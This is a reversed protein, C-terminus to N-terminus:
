SDFTVGQSDKNYVVTSQDTKTLTIKLTSLSGYCLVKTAYCTLPLFDNEVLDSARQIAAETFGWGHETALIQFMLFQKLVCLHNFFIQFM